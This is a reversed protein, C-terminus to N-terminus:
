AGVIHEHQKFEKEKDTLTRRTVSGDRWVTVREARTLFTIGALQYLPSGDNGGIFGGRPIRATMEGLCTVYDPGDCSFLVTTEQTRMDEGEVVACVLGDKPVRWAATADDSSALNWVGARSPRGAFDFRWRLRYYRKEMIM